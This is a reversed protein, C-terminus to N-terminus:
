HFNSDPVMSILNDIKFSRWGGRDIAYVSLTDDSSTKQSAFNSESQYAEPNLTAIMFASEGNVKKFQVQFVGRRFCHILLDKKSTSLKKQTEQPEVVNNFKDILTQAITKMHKIKNAANIDLTIM